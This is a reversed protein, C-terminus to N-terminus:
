KIGQEKCEAYLAWLEDESLKSLEDRVWRWSPNWQDGTFKALGLATLAESKDWPVGAGVIADTILEKWAESAPRHEPGSEECHDKFVYPDEFSKYSLPDGIIGDDM